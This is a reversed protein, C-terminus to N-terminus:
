SDLVKAQADFVHALASKSCEILGLFQEYSFKQVEILNPMEISESLIGFKNRLPKRNSLTLNETM